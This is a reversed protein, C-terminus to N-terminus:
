PITPRVMITTAPYLDAIPNGEFIGDDDDDGKDSRKDAVGFKRKSMTKTRAGADTIASEVSNKNGASTLDTTASGFLRKHFNAPFMSSVFANSKAATQMIQFNAQQMIKDYAFFAAAMLLFLGALVLCFVIPTTSSYQNELESSPYITITYSCNSSGGRNQENIPSGVTKGYDVVFAHRDFKSEHLDGVGLFTSKPNDKKVVYTYAKDVEAPDECSDQLVYYVGFVEPPLVHEFFSRWNLISSTMAVMQSSTDHLREFVPYVLISYEHHDTSTDSDATTSPYNETSTAQLQVFFDASSSRGIDGVVLGRTASAADILPQMQPVGAYADVSALEQQWPSMQWFPYLYPLDTTMTRTTLRRRGGAGNAATSTEVWAELEAQLVLPCVAVFDLLPSSETTKVFLDWNRLTVFPWTQTETEATVLESIGVTADM